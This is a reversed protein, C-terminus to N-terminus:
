SDRRLEDVDDYEELWGDFRNEMWNAAWQMADQEAEECGKDECLFFAYEGVTISDHVAVHAHWRMEQEGDENYHDPQHSVKVTVHYDDHTWHRISESATENRTWQPLDIDDM